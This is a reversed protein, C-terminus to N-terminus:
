QKVAEIHARARAHTHTHTHTHLTQRLLKQVKKTRVTNTADNIYIFRYLYSQVIKTSSENM